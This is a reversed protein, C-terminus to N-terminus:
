SILINPYFEYIFSLITFTLTSGLKFSLFLCVLESGMLDFAYTTPIALFILKRLKVKAQKKFPLNM